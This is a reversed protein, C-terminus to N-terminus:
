LVSMSSRSKRVEKMEVTCYVKKDGGGGGRSTSGRESGRVKETWRLGARIGQNCIGVCVIITYVSHCIFLVCICVIRRCLHTFIRCM